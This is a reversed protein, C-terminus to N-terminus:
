TVGDQQPPKPSAEGDYRIVTIHGQGEIYAAKVEQPDDIGQERLYQKMEDLTILERRMNFPLLRGERILPRPAPSVLRQVLPYHFSLWDLAWSWFLLVVVLLLVETVSTAAGTMGNQVADALLVVILLNNVNLSGVERRPSTRMLALLALYIISGRLVIELLSLHLAFIAGWDDPLLSPLM